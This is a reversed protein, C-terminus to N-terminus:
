GDGGDAGRVDDNVGYFTLLSAIDRVTHAHRGAEIRSVKPQSWNLARAVQEGSMGSAERLRRLEAGVRLRQASADTSM